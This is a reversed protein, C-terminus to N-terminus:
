WSSSPPIPPIIYIEGRAVAVITTMINNIRLCPGLWHTLSSSTTWWMLTRTLTTRLTWPRWTPSPPHRAPVPPQLPRLVKLKWPTAALTQRPCPSTRWTPPSPGEATAEMPRTAVGLPVWKKNIVEMRNSSNNTWAAFSSAFTFTTLSRYYIIMMPFPSFPRSATQWQGGANKNVNQPYRQGLQASHLRAAGGGM